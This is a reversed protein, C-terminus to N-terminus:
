ATLAPTLRREAGNTGPLAAITRKQRVDRDRKLRAEQRVRTGYVRLCQLISVPVLQQAACPLVDHVTRGGVVEIEAGVNDRVACGRRSDRRKRATMM